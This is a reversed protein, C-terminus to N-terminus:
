VRVSILRSGLEIDRLVITFFHRVSHQFNNLSFFLKFIYGLVKISDCLILIRKSLFCSVDDRGHKFSPSPIFITEPHLINIVGHSLLWICHSYPLGEALWAAEIVSYWILIIGTILFVTDEFRLKFPGISIILLIPIYHHRENRFHFVFVAFLDKHNQCVCIM